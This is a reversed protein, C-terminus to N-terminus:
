QEINESLFVSLLEISRGSSDSYICILLLSDWLHGLPSESPVGLSCRVLMCTFRDSGKIFKSKDFM